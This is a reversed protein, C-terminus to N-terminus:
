TYPTDPDAAAPPVDVQAILALDDASVHGLVRGDDLVNLERGELDKFLRRLDRTGGITFWITSVIGIAGAIVINNIFFWRAWGANGWPCVVNWTAVVVFCVLFGWGFSWLFVSWALIRDGRTYQNDIGVLRPIVTRWTLKPQEM